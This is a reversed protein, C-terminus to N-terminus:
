ANQEGSDFYFVPGGSKYYKSNVWYRNKYTRDDSVNYHDIPIDLRYAPYDEPIIDIERADLYSPLHPAHHFADVALSTVLLSFLNYSWM